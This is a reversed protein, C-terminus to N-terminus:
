QQCGPQAARHHSAVQHVVQQRDDRPAHVSRDIRRAPRHDGAGRVLKRATIRSPLARSEQQLEVLRLGPGAHVLAGEAGDPLIELNRLQEVTLVVEGSPYGGGTLSSRGAQPLVAIGQGATSRLWASLEMESEARLVGAAEGVGSGSADELYPSVLDPDIVLEPVQVRKGVCPDTADIRVRGDTM